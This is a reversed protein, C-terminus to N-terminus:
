FNLTLQKIFYKKSYIELNFVGLPLSKDLEDACEWYRVCPVHAWDINSPNM